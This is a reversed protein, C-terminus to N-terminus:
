QLIPHSVSRVVVGRGVAPDRDDPQVAAQRTRAVVVLEPAVEDRAVARDGLHVVLPQARGPDVLGLGGVVAVHAPRGHDLVDVQEVGREEVEARALRLPHVRLQPQEELGRPRRQLVAAVVGLPVVAPDADERARQGAGVQQVVHQGPLPPERPRQRPHALVLGRQHAVVRVVQAGAHGVVQVEGAGADGHLRGARRRQDRHVDRRLAQDRPLAVDREGPADRQPEGVLRAVPVVDVADGRGGPGHAREVGGGVARQEAVADAHDHQLPQLVRHGLAVGHPRHQAARGHAVVTGVPDAVGRGADRALRGHEGLRQRHGPHVRRGHAVEFGVAGPGPDAVRDLEVRQGPHVLHVSRLRQRQARDLRVEAVQAGRGPDGPQDLAHQHQAVPGQHRRRVERPPVRLAPHLAGAEPDARLRRRPGRGPSRQAARDGGGPHAPGRRVDHQLLCGRRVAVRRVFRGLRQQRHRRLRGGRQVPQAGRQGFVQLPRLVGEPRCAVRCQVVRGVRQGGPPPGEVVARHDGRRVPRGRRPHQAGAIGPVHVPVGALGGLPRDHEQEGTLARLVGAHAAAPVLVQRDEAVDHVLAGVQQLRVQAQVDAVHEEGPQGAVAALRVVEAAGRQRLGRQEGDLVGQRLLPRGPAHPRARHDPVADALVDGRRQRPDEPEGVREVDDGLASPQDVRQGGPHHRRHHQRRLLQGGVEARLDRQGRDVLGRHARDGTRAVGDALQGGLEGGVSDGVALHGGGVREVRRHHLGRDAREGVEHAPDGQVARPDREGGVAGAGPDAVVLGGIGGVPAPVQAGRHPEGVVDGRHEGIAPM